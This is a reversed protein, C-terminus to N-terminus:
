YGAFCEEAMLGITLELSLFVLYLFELPGVAWRSISRKGSSGAGAEESISRQASLAAFQERLEWPLLSELPTLRL